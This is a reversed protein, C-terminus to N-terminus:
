KNEAADAAAILIEGAKRAQQRERKKSLDFVERGLNVRPVVHYPRDNYTNIFFLRNRRKWLASM